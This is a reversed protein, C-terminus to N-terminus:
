QPHHKGAAMWPERLLSLDAKDEVNEASESNALNSRRKKSGLRRRFLAEPPGLLHERCRLPQNVDRIAFANTAAEGSHLPHEVQEEIFAVVSRRRFRPHACLKAM